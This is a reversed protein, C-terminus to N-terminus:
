STGISRDIVAISSSCIQLHIVQVRRWHLEYGRRGTSQDHEHGRYVRVQEKNANDPASLEDHWADQLIQIHKEANDSHRKTTMLKWGKGSDELDNRIENGRKITRYPLDLIRMMARGQRNDILDSPMLAVVGAWFANREADSRRGTTKLMENFYRKAAQHWLLTPKSDHTPRTCTLPYLQQTCM